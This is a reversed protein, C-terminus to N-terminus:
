RKLNVVIDMLDTGTQFVKSNATYSRQAAIMNTLEDAIDVNSSELAGSNISGFGGSNAFGIHVPGSDTSETFVNGPLTQLHDPSPVNALPIRYLARITGDDYQASVIGDQSIAVKDITSPANGNVQANAVIYGTSLQTMSSLDLNLSQGNPVPITIDTASAGALKGNAPDFNLTQTALPGSSYPFGTNPTADAQNYVSVEWTNNASKTFYVDLMVKSGLNDYTVLSSKQSYTATAANTSPLNAAAVISGDAPLNATFVGTTSPSATLDSHAITVPVLGNFGNATASPVGAAYSYGMLAFGATNVLTGTAKNEVFSGARTLYPTGSADSVIFFGNGQLALDTNSTTYQLPGQQSITAVTTSAVGGSSYTGPTSPIVLTSFETQSRKYGTTDANAINDSVSSLRNSQAAMGSVGTRMMGYLSM